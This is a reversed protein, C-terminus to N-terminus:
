GRKEKQASIIAGYISALNESLMDTQYQRKARQNANEGLSVALNEDLLLRRMQYALAKTDEYRYFLAEKVDTALSPVGGVFPVVSPVGLCMAEGLTNPSNEMSSGMVYMRSKLFTDCMTKEDLSGLFEIHQEMGLKQIWKSLYHHYGIKQGKHYAGCVKLKLQPFEDKLYSAAEVIKHFGKLPNALGGACFITCPETNSIDWTNEMFTKRICEQLYFYKANKNHFYTHTRDWLTRGIVYDVNQLQWIESEARKKNKLHRLKEKLWDLPSFWFRLEPYSYDKKTIESILGQISLVVPINNQKLFPIGIPFESGQLHILDPKIEQLLEQMRQTFQVSPKIQRDQYSISITRYCIGDINGSYTTNEQVLSVIHLEVDSLNKLKKSITDLWWGSPSVPLNLQQQVAPMSFNVIWLIKM